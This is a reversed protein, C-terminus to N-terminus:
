FVNLGKEIYSAVLIPLWSTAVLQMGVSKIAFSISGLLLRRKKRAMENLYKENAKQDHHM